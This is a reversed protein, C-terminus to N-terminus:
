RKNSGHAPVTVSGGHVPVTMSGSLRRYVLTPSQMGPQIQVNKRPQPECAASTTCITRVPSAARPTTMPPMPSQTGHVHVATTATCQMPEVARPTYMPAAPSQTGLVAGTKPAQVTGVARPTYTPARVSQSGSLQSPKTSPAADQKGLPARLSSVGSVGSVGQAAKGTVRNSSVSRPPMVKSGTRWGASSDMSPKVEVSRKAPGESPRRTKPEEVSRKGPLQEGISATSALSLSRGCVSSQRTTTTTVDSKPSNSGDANDSSEEPWVQKVLEVCSVPNCEGLQPERSPEQTHANGIPPTMRLREMGEVVEELRGNGLISERLNELEEQIPWIARQLLAEMDAEPRGRRPSVRPSPSFEEMPNTPKVEVDHM